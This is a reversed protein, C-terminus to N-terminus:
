IEDGQSTQRDAGAADGLEDDSLVDDPQSDPTGIVDAMTAGPALKLFLEGTNWNCGGGIIADPNAVVVGQAKLFEILESVEILRPQEDTDNNKKSDINEPANDPDTM